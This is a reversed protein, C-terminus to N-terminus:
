SDRFPKSFQIVYQLWLTAIKIKIIMLIFTGHQLVVKLKHM